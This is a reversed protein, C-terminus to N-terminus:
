RMDIEVLLPLHDSVERRPRWDAILEKDGIKRLYEYGRVGDMLARSVLAQDYCNWIPGTGDSSLYYHSGYTETDESLWHVTPNYMFPYNKGYWTRSPRSKLIGKFLTANFANPLLLERDYPNANFDGMVVTKDIALGREYGHVVGMMQRIDELRPEADPSSMRDVLHTAAFVCQAEPCDLAFVTFRSEEFCSFDGVASDVLVKIKDCGGFGLVRYGTGLLLGDTFETGSHEAFAAIAVGNARMCELALDANDNRGMNWFLLKMHRGYNSQSKRWCMRSESARM